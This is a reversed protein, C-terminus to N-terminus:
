NANTSHCHAKILFNLKLRTPECYKIAASAALRLQLLYLSKTLDQQHIAKVSNFTM